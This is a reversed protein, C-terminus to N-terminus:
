DGSSPKTCETRSRAQRRTGLKTVSASWDLRIDWRHTLEEPLTPADRADVAQYVHVPPVVSADRGHVYDQDDVITRYAKNLDLARRRSPAILEYVDKSARVKRQDVVGNAFWRAVMEPNNRFEGGGGVRELYTAIEGKTEGINPADPMGRLNLYGWGVAGDIKRAFSFTSDITSGISTHCGMCFLNEEYNAVRLQGKRNEIFGLLVWGMENDLGHDGRDVYGPLEGSDKESREQLYVEYLQPETRLFYKRMYRLEKMRQPANIKGDADVGVYRVSHLFETHQPYLHSRKFAGSAAGVYGSTRTIRDITDLKGDGDLDVGIAREDLARVTISTLGKINAEVLALNAKYVARSYKGDAATRYAEPLRIMVDDTSGNTPWFTSPLPKYNFAVWHSGDRAFGEDDFAAAALQLGSLDPIFGRFQIARLREALESYNDQAIWAQIEDDSIAAVRQTRDEFLNQWHNTAGLESFSYVRQLEADDMRNPRDAARDQHCVYCPNYKGETRTYCMPPVVAERNYVTHLPHVNPRAPVVGDDGRLLALVDEYDFSEVPLTAQVHHAYLPEARTSALM